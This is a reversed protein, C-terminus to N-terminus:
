KNFTPINRRRLAEEFFVTKTKYRFLLAIESPKHGNKILSEVERAVFEAEKIYGKVGAEDKMYCMRVKEDVDDEKYIRSCRLEDGKTYPMEGSNNNFLLSFVANSYDLVTKHSRFNDSLFVTLGDSKDEDSSYMPFANRYSSFLSPESGRFGYISQKIDGVMFRNKPTSVASFIKDQLENVDQYEDIFVHKFREQVSYAINSKETLATDNYLLKLSLRELDNYDLIGRKAKEEFFRSEFIRFFRYLTDNIESTLKFHQRVNKESFCFMETKIKNNVSKFRDRIKKHYEASEPKNKGKTGLEKYEFSSFLDFVESYTGNDLLDCVKYCFTADKQFAELYNMSLYEDCEIEKCSANLKSCHYEYVKKLYRRIVNGWKSHLINDEASEALDEAASKLVEIGQPYNRLSNYIDLFDVALNDDTKGMLFSESFEDFHPTIETHLGSYCEEILANLVNNAVLLIEGEEGIKVTNSLGLIQFNKRVLDFCFSHITCIKAGGLMILQKSLHKNGPHEQMAEYIAKSIREKLESAAAKTYTVVLLDSVDTPEKDDTIINIIRKTLVATKGSGAAASVLLTHGKSYVANKQGETLKIENSM